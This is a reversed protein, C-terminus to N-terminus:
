QFRLSQRILFSATAGSGGRFVTVRWGLKETEAEGYAALIVDGVVEQVSVDTVPRAVRLRAARRQRAGNVLHLGADRHNASRRCSNSAALPGRAACECLGRFGASFRPPPHPVDTARSSPM